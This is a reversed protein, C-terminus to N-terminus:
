LIWLRLIIQLCCLMVPLVVSPQFFRWLYNVSITFSKLSFVLIRRNIMPVDNADWFSPLLIIIILKFEPHRILGMNNLITEYMEPKNQAFNISQVSVPWDLDDLWTRLTGIIFPLKKQPMLDLVNKKGGHLFSVTCLLVTCKFSELRWIPSM